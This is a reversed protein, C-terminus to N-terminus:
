GSLPEGAPTLLGGAEASHWYCADTTLHVGGIWRDIGNARVHNEAGMLVSAGFPTLSARQRFGEPTAGGLPALPAGSPAALLPRKAQAVDDILHAFSLDGMFPADEADQMQRFMDAVTMPMAMLMGTALALSAPLGTRADPYEARLRRLASAMHPLALDVSALTNLANPDEAVLAQWTRCADEFMAETVAAARNPLDAFDAASLEMLNADSQVLMLAPRPTMTAAAALIQAIQLQDYLDHEFWLAVTDDRCRAAFLADREALEAAIEEVPRGSMDALFRARAASCEALTAAPRVPGDHLVDRWPLVTAALGLARIRDAAADGNTVILM